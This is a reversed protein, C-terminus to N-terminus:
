HAASSTEDTVPGGSAVYVPASTAFVDIGTQLSARPSSGHSKPALAAALPPAAVVSKAGDFDAPGARRVARRPATASSASVCAISFRSPKTPSTYWWPSAPRYPRIAFAHVAAPAVSSAQRPRRLR